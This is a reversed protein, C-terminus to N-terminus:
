SAGDVEGPENLHTSCLCFMMNRAPHRLMAPLLSSIIVVPIDPLDLHNASIFFNEAVHEKVKMLFTQLLAHSVARPMMEYHIDARIKEHVM